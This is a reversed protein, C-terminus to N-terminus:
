RAARRPRLRALQQQIVQELKAMDTEGTLSAVRRGDPGYIVEAPLDGQWKPDISNIFAEDAGATKIFVPFRPKQKNVFPIVSKQLRSPLDISVSLVELGKDRYKNSLKVVDPYSAVCPACWTAWLNLLVVKGKRKAIEQKLAAASIPKVKVQAEAASVGLSLAVLAAALYRRAM